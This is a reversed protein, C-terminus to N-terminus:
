VILEQVQDPTLGTKRYNHLEILDKEVDEKCYGWTELARGMVENQFKVAGEQIEAIIKASYEKM